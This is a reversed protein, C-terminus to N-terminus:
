FTHSFLTKWTKRSAKCLIRLFHSFFLTKQAKQTVNLLLHSFVTNKVNKSASQVFNAFFASFCRKKLKKRSTGWFTHSFLTKKLTKRSVKYLTRLFRSFIDNKSSKARREGFLTLFCHKKVNDSVSLNAWLKAFFAFFLPKQAKQAVNLLFQSFVTNKWTNRSLKFLIRLFHSFCRKKLKKRSTGRFTHSFLTKERKELCKTCFECFIANKKLKKRSTKWFTNSFLTNERKRLCKTWLKGFFAFFLKKQGKQVVNELLTLFSHKKWTKRSM